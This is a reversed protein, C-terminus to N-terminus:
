RSVRFVSPRRRMPALTTRSSRGSTSPMTRATLWRTSTSDTDALSALSPPVADHCLQRVLGGSRLTVGELDVVQARRRPGLLGLGADTAALAGLALGGAAPGLAGPGALLDRTAELTALHRQVHPDRLELAERVREAGFVLDDVEGLEGFQERVAPADVDLGQDLGPRDPAPVRHLHEAVAVQRDRQLDLRVGERRGGPLLDGGGASGGDLDLGAQEQPDPGATPPCPM